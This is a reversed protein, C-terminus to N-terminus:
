ETTLDLADELVDGRMDEDALGFGAVMTQNVQDEEVQPLVSLALDVGAVPSEVTHHLTGGVDVNQLELQILTRVGCHSLDLSAAVGILVDGVPSGLHQKADVEAPLLLRHRPPLHLPNFLRTAWAFRRACARRKAQSTAGSESGLM